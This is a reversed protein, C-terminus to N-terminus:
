REARITAPCDRSPRAVLAVPAVPRGLGDDRQEGLHEALGGVVPGVDIQGVAAMELIEAQVLHDAPPAAEDQDDIGATVLIEFEFVQAIGHPLHGEVEADADGEPFQAGQLEASGARLRGPREIWREVRPPGNVVPVRVAPSPTSSPMM